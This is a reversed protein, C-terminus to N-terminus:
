WTTATRGGCRAGDPMRGLVVPVGPKLIGAKERAIAALTPGLIRMHELSISTIATADPVIVNTADLRGGMGVEVVAIDVRREAFWTLAMLATLEFFTLWPISGRAVHGDLAAFLRVVDRRPIERGDIRIRETYRHLHPSTFMGTRWGAKSLYSALMATVSGKGNSGAVHAARLQKEPSGLGAAADEVREICFRADKGARRYLEALTERYTRM